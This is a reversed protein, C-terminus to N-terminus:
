LSDLDTIGEVGASTGGDGFLTSGAVQFMSPMFILAAAVFMLAIPTGVPIQQPNDKHAKFKLIAGIAFGLGAIYSAATIMEALSSFTDKLNDAVDGLNEDQAYATNAFLLGLIGMSIFIAKVWQQLSENKILRM